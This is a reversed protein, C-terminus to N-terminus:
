VRSPGAVETQLLWSLGHEAILGRRAFATTLKAGAAAIRVDCMAALMLGMGAAAGNVAAIM